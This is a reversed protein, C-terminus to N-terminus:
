EQILSAACAERFSLRTLEEVSSAYDDVKAWTKRDPSIKGGTSRAILLTVNHFARLDVLTPVSVGDVSMKIRIIRRKSTGSNKFDFTVRRSPHDGWREPDDWRYWTLSLEQWHSFGNWACYGLPVGPEWMAEILQRATPLATRDRVRVWAKTVSEAQSQVTSQSGLFAPHALVPAPDAQKGGVGSDYIIIRNEADRTVTGGGALAETTWTWHEGLRDPAFWLPKGERVREFRVIPNDDRTYYVRFRIGPFEHKLKVFWMQAMLQGLRCLRQFDPHEINYIPLGDPEEGVIKVNSRVLDMIHTHNDLTIPKWPLYVDGGWEDFDPWLWELVELAERVHIPSM